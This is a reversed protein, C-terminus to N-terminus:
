LVEGSNYLGLSVMNRKAYTNRNSKPLYLVRRQVSGSCCQNGVHALSCIMFIIKHKMVYDDEIIILTERRESLRDADLYNIHRQM